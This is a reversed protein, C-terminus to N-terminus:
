IGFAVLRGGAAQGAAHMVAKAFAEIDAICHDAPMVMMVANPGQRREADIAALAIAAATDHGEPELIFTLAPDIRATAALHTEIGYLHATNAVAIVESVGPLAAARRLGHQFLSMGDPLVLLPKPHLPQTLPWLRSGAGG